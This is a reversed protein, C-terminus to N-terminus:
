DGVREALLFVFGPTPLCILNSVWVFFYELNDALFKVSEAGKEDM